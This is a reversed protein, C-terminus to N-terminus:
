QLPKGKEERFVTVLGEKVLYFADVPDGERFIVQRSQVSEERVIGALRQLQVPDLDRFLSISRLFETLLPGGSSVRNESTLRITHGRPGALLDPIMQSM